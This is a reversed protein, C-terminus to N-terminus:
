CLCHHHDRYTGRTVLGLVGSVNALDAKVGRYVQAEVLPLKYLATLLLKMYPLYPQLEEYDHARLAANMNRFM